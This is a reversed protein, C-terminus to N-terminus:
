PLWALNLVNNSGTEGQQSGTRVMDPLQLLSENMKEIPIFYKNPTFQITRDLITLKEGMKIIVTRKKELDDADFDEKAYRAFTFVEDAVERWNRAKYEARNRDKQLTKLKKELEAMEAFYWADDDAEGSYRMRRLNAIAQSAKEIANDRSGTQV